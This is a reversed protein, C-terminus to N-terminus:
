TNKLYNSQIAAKRRAISEKMDRVKNTLDKKERWAGWRRCLYFFFPTIVFLCLPFSIFISMNFVISVFISLFVSLPPNYVIYIEFWDMLYKPKFDKLEKEYIKVMVEDNALSIYDGMGRGYGLEASSGASSGASPNAPGTKKFEDTGPKHKWGHGCGLCYLMINKSGHFGALLGLKGFAWGGLAGKVPSYGKEQIVIQTSKCKPCSIKEEEAM